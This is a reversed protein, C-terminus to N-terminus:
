RTSYHFLASIQLLQIDEASLQQADLDNHKRYLNALIPVYAAVRSVHSMGHCDRKAAANRWTPPYPNTYIHTFAFAAHTTIPSNFHLQANPTTLAELATPPLKKAFQKELVNQRSM